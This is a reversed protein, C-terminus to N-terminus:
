NLRVPLVLYEFADGEIPKVLCPSIPASFEMVIADATIEKVITYLFKHNFGIELDDGDKIVPVEETIKGESARSSITLLDDSIHFRLFISKGESVIPNARELSLQLDEVSVTMKIKNDKPLLDKYKIFDGNMMRAYIKTDGIEVFAHKKSFTLRTNDEEESALIRGLDKLIDAHIVVQKEIDTVIPEKIIAMRFGDLAVMNISNNKIEILTGTIIGRSEDTSAAFCSKSIMMSLTERDIDITEGEIDAFAQPFEEPDIGQLTYETKGGVLTIQNNDDMSFSINGQPLYRVYEIFKKALVVISGTEAVNAGLRTEISIEMDSAKLEITNDDLTTILIGKLIPHSSKNTVARSTTALKKFLEAQSTIFKM